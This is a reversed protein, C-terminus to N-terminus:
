CYQGQSKAIIKRCVNLLPELDKLVMFSQYQMEDQRDTAVAIRTLPHPHMGARQRIRDVQRLLERNSPDGALSRELTRLDSDSNRRYHM